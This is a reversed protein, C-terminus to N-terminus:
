RLRRLLPQHLLLLTSLPMLLPRLVACSALLPLLWYLGQWSIILSSCRGDLVEKITDRLIELVQLDAEQPFSFFRCCGIYREAATLLSMLMELVQLDGEQPFCVTAFAANNLVGHVKVCLCPCGSFLDHCCM